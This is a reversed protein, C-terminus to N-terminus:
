PLLPCTWQSEWGGGLKSVLSWHKSLTEKSPQSTLLASSRTVCASQRLWPVQQFVGESPCRSPAVTNAFLPVFMTGYFDLPSWNPSSKLERRMM